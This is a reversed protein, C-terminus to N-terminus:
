LPRQPGRPPQAPPNFNASQTLHPRDRRGLKDRFPETASVVQHVLMASAPEAIRLPSRRKQWPRCPSAAIGTEGGGDDGSGTQVACLVVSLPGRRPGNEQPRHLGFGQARPVLHVMCAILGGVALLRSNSRSRRSNSCRITRLSACRRAVSATACAFYRQVSPVARAGHAPPRPGGRTTELERQRQRETKPRRRAVALLRASRQLGARVPEVIERRREAGVM